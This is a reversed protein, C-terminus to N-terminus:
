RTAVRSLVFTNGSFQVQGPASMHELMLRLNRGLRASDSRTEYWYEAASAGARVPRHHEYCRFAAMYEEAAQVEQASFGNLRVVYATPLGGCAEATPGGAVPAAVAGLVSATGPDAGRRPALVGDLKATLAAAVDGAIVKAEAGVRELLCERDCGQPLPPLQVGAVEFSGLSQGTRVNLLRGPIRVEPRVIDSYTSKSASAYIQFVAVVDLPPSSVARAVEILEADRRRVRNAQTFGMAVATEDYVNYGRLNMTESLEAIVRQFIRNGRPVSDEDADEGMVVVTPKPQALAPGAVLLGLSFAALAARIPLM